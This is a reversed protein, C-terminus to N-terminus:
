CVQAFMGESAFGMGVKIIFIWESHLIFPAAESVYKLFVFCQHVAICPVM